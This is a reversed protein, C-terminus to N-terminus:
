NDDIPLERLWREVEVREYRILKHTGSWKPGDGRKRMSILQHPHIGILRAAEQNTLFPKGLWGDVNRKITTAAHNIMKEFGRAVLAEYRPDSLLIHATQTYFDSGSIHAVAQELRTIRDGNQQALEITRTSCREMITEALLDIICASVRQVLAALDAESLSVM